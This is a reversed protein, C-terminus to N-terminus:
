PKIQELLAHWHETPFTCYANGDETDYIDVPMSIGQSYIATRTSYAGTGELYYSGQQQEVWNLQTNLVFRICCENAEIRHPRYIFEKQNEGISRTYLEEEKLQYSLSKELACLAGHAVLTKEMLVTAMTTTLLPFFRALYLLYAKADVEKSPVTQAVIAMLQWFEEERFVMEHNHADYWGIRYFQGDVELYLIEEFGVRNNLVLVSTLGYLHTIPFDFRLTEFNWHYPGGEMESVIAQNKYQGQEYLDQWDEKSLPTEGFTYLWDWFSPREFITM